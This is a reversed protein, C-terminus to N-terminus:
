PETTASTIVIMKKRAVLTSLKLSHIFAIGSPKLLITGAMRTRVNAHVSLDIVSENPAASYTAPITAFIASLLASILRSGARTNTTPIKRAKAVPVDQPVNPIRIGITTFTKPPSTLLSSIIIAM